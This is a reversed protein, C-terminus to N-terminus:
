PQPPGSSRSPPQDPLFPLALALGVAMVGLAAIAALLLGSALSVGSRGVLGVLGSVVLLVGVRSARSLVYLVPIILATRM